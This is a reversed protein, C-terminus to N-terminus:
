FSYVLSFEMVRPDNLTSTYDGFNSSGWELQATNPDFNPTNTLNYINAQGQIHQSATGPVRWQKALSVDVGFWGGGRINNKTGSQGPYAYGFSNLAEAANAFINLQGNYNSPGFNLPGSQNGLGMEDWNTPWVYGMYVSAPLGSTWRTTGSFKWGGIAANLWGGANRGFFQGRGVPLKWVWYGSLQNRLDFDSPGYMQNIDWANTIMTSDSGGGFEPMSEIGLAKSYTYNFGFLLGNTFQKHLGLQFANYNAYGISRWVYLSSFQSNYFSNLGGIPATPYGGVDMNYLASTENYLNEAFNAYTAQLLSTTTAAGGAMPTGANALPYCQTLGTGAAGCTNATKFLDTWYQATPGIVSASIASDPINQRALKSLRDAAQFYSIGSKPDVLNTPMAIDDEVLTRRSFHGVYGLDLTVGGPLQREISFNAAISYPTQLSQDIGRAIAEYGVPYVIPYTSSPASPVLSQGNTGTTPIVNMSTIRPVDAISIGTPNEVLSSLGFSGSQSYSLALAPGFYDYYLGVGGRISSQGDGFLSHLLGGHPHPSWAVGFRPAFDNQMNYLGSRGWASGAPQFAILQDQSSPIGQMMDAARTDFWDGMNVNPLVEQGDTETIPTMIQYNLGYSVSVDPTMQWTDQAFLNYDRTEWNQTIPTGQALPTAQTLSSITYNYQTDIESAMGMMGALPFDYANDGGGAVAPYGATEPDLANGKGAFGAGDVWDSNTLADSYSTYDNADYRNVFLFNAGFAFNHAGDQWSATDMLNQVPAVVRGSRNIDQSLNRIEVWPQTSDGITGVSQRTLGYRLSNVFDPGGVTTYGLVFGKSLDTQTTQPGDGPLFPAGLVNDDVATGRFFLTQNPSIDYDFRGIYWGDNNQTPASFTYGGFNPEDIANNSNPLPYTDFYKLAVQSPGIHLPDMQTLQAPSLGYYGKAVSYPKGDEGNVTMAPCQSATACQYQIIGQRLTASPVTQEESIAQSERQGEYNFFFFLKNHKIPGGITGGYVNRVLHNPQNCNVTSSAPCNELEATKLFFENAEGIDSRNFEYLSGHYQNTGGKTVLAVQAGATRGQNAGYNSTTVRFEQVSFPTSPLVGTFGAGGFVDNNNTGDLTINNQNTREGDVSGGRYGGDLEKTGTFVVGPQLSLLLNLNEAQLPLSEIAVHGMTQGVSNDTTNLLPAASRVQVTSTVQGIRLAVNVNAPLNVRLQLGPREYTSFGHAAVTLTYAGPLVAAFSYRGDAATVTRRATGTATNAITVLAGPVAAGSPDTVAGRLSSTSQAWAAGCVALVAVLTLLGRAMRGMRTKERQM